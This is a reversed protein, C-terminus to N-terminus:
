KAAQLIAKRLEQDELHADRREVIAKIAGLVSRDLTSEVFAVVDGVTPQRMENPELEEDETDAPDDQEKSAAAALVLNITDRAQELKKFNAASLVRGAKNQPIASQIHGCNSNTCIGSEDLASGCTVCSGFPRETVSEKTEPEGSKKCGCSGGKAPTLTAGPVVVPRSDHYQKAWQKVTPDHLKGRAYATIVADTNSPVSVLSEEMVEFETIKYGPISNPNSRDEEMLKYQMPRFGHSIRLAGFEVLHAADVGLQSDIIASAVMLRDDTHELVKLMKGIPMPLMHHWLLPMNKDVKAGSTLLCDGDRDKKPTTVINNFVMISRQPVEVDANKCFEVISDTSTFLKESLPKTDENSYVLSSEAAKLAEALGSKGLTGDLGPFFTRQCAEDGVCSVFPRVYDSARRIGYVSELRNQREAIQKLLEDM